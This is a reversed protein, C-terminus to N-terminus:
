ATRGLGTARLHGTPKLKLVELAGLLVLEKLSINVGEDQLYVVAGRQHTVRMSVEPM